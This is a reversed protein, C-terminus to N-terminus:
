IAPRLNFAVFIIGAILLPNKAAHVKSSLAHAKEM